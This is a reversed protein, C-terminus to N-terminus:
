AAENSYERQGLNQNQPRYYVAERTPAVNARMQIGAFGIVSYFAM